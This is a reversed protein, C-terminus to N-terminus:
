WLPSVLEFDGFGYNDRFIFRKGLNHYQWIEYQAQQGSYTDKEVESPHGYIILIHGRDSEWGPRSSGFHQNSYETRRYYELMKGNIREGKSPFKDDWFKLLEAPKDIPPIALLRSIEKNSAVYRLQSIALEINQISLPLGDSQVYVTKHRDIVLDNSNVRLLLDFKGSAFDNIPIPLFHSSFNDGGMLSTSDSWQKDGQKSFISIAIKSSKDPNPRYLEVYCYNESTESVVTGSINPAEPLGTESMVSDSYTLIIDSVNIVSTVTPNIKLPRKLQKRKKSESDVLLVILEYDGPTLAISFSGTIAETRSNTLEYSEVQKIFNKIKRIIQGHKSRSVSLHVEVSATYVHDERVFTVLDNLIEIFIEVRTTSDDRSLRRFVDFDFLPQGLEEERDWRIRDRDASVAIQSFVSIVFYIVLTLTIERKSYRM